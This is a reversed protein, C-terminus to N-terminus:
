VNLVTRLKEFHFYEKKVQPGSIVVGERNQQRRKRSKLSEMRRLLAKASDRLRESGTRRFRAALLEPDGAPHGPPLSGYRLSSIVPIGGPDYEDEEGLLQDGPFDHNDEDDPASQDKEKGGAATVYLEKFWRVVGRCPTKEKKSGSLTHISYLSLFKSPELTVQNLVFL